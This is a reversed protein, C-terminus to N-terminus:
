RRGVQQFMKQSSSKKKKKKKKANITRPLLREYRLSVCFLGERIKQVTVAASAFKDVTVDFSEPAAGSLWEWEKM